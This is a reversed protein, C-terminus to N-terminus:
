AGAPGMIRAWGDIEAPCPIDCRDNMLPVPILAGGPRGTSLRESAPYPM